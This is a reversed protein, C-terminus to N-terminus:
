SLSLRVVEGTSSEEGLYAKVAGCVKRLLKDRLARQEAKADKLEEPTYLGALLDPYELRALEARAAPASCKNRSKTGTGRSSARDCTCCDPRSRRSSPTASVQLPKENGKRHTEYTCVKDTTEVLRFYEAMGSKLVLAVMLEASLSHKGEIVHVSRLASMAPLGLERGSYCRPSLVAQPTGYASFM